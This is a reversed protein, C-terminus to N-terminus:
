RPAHVIWFCGNPLLKLAVLAVTPGLNFTAREGMAVFAVETVKAAAIFLGM